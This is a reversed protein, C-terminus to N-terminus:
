HHSVFKEFAQGGILCTVRTGYLHNPKIELQCGIMRARYQMINLGMGTPHDVVKRFGKGDDIVELEMVGLSVHLVIQITDAQAHKVANNVAEQAMRFLHIARTNDCAVPLGDFHFTCDIGTLRSTSAALQELASELGGEDRDVPSLGRALDRARAVADHLSGAIQGAKVSDAPSRPTLENQLADAALSVAVLHQGLSDHLDRGIRQQERESISIIEQELKQSKELLAIRARSADRQNRFLIGAAVVLFFFMLKVITDWTRLWEHSYPHGTARDAWWWAITSLVCFIVAAPTGSFWLALLIPISYFPYCTVEYGTLYDFFGVVIMLLFIECLLLKHSQARIIKCFHDWLKM